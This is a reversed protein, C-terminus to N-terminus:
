FKVLEFKGVFAESERAYIVFDSDTLEVYEVGSSTTCLNVKFYSFGAKWGEKTKISVASYVQYHNGTKKHRIVSNETLNEVTIESYSIGM